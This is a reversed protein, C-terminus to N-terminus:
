PRYVRTLGWAMGSDRMHAILVSVTTRYAQQPPRSSDRHISEIKRQHGAAACDPVTAAHTLQIIKKGKGTFSEFPLSAPLPCLKCRVVSWPQQLLPHYFSIERPFRSPQLIDYTSVPRSPLTKNPVGLPFRLHCVGPWHPPPSPCPTPGRRNNASASAVRGTALRGMRIRIM